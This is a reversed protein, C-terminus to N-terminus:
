WHIERPSREGGGFGEHLDVLVVGQCFLTLNTQFYSVGLCINHNVQKGKIFIIKKILQKNVNNNAFFPQMGKNGGNNPWKTNKGIKHHPFEWCSRVAGFLESCSGGVTVVPFNRVLDDHGDSFDFWHTTLDANQIHKITVRRVSSCLWPFHNMQLYQCIQPKGAMPSVGTAPHNIEHFM